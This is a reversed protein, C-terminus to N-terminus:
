SSEIMSRASTLAVSYIPPIRHKVEHRSGSLANSVLHENRTLIELFDRCTGCDSLHDDVQRRLHPMLEDDIYKSILPWVCEKCDM